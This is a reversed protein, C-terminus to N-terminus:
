YCRANRVERTSTLLFFRANTNSDTYMSTEILMRIQTIIIRLIILLLLCGVAGIALSQKKYVPFEPGRVPLQSLVSGKSVRM